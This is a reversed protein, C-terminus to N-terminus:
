ISREQSDSCSMIITDHWPFALLSREAVSGKSFHFFFHCLRANRLRDSSSSGIVRALPAWSAVFTRPLTGVQNEAMTVTLTINERVAIALM